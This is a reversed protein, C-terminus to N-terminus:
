HKDKGHMIAIKKFLIRKSILIKESEKLDKLEDQIPDLSMKNFVAQCPIENRSFHKHCTHCIYNKEDFSRVSCYLEAAFINYKEQEFQRVSLKYFCQHCVTCIFYPDKRIQQCFM